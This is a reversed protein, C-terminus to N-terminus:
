WYLSQIKWHHSYFCKIDGMSMKCHSKSVGVISLYHWHCSRGNRSIPLVQLFPLFSMIHTRLSPLLLCYFKLLSEPSMQKWFRAAMSRPLGCSSVMYLYELQCGLDPSGADVTLCVLSFVEPHDLRWSNLWGLWWTKGASAESMIFLLFAMEAVGERFQQGVFVM